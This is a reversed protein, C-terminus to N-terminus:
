KRAEPRAPAVVFPNQVDAYHEGQFALRCFTILPRIDKDPIHIRAILPDIAVARQVRGNRVYRGGKAFYWVATELDPLSGDHGYPPRKACEVMPATRFCYDDAARGTIAGRGRDLNNGSRASLGANHWHQDRWGYKPDHCVLCNAQFTPWGELAEAPLGSEDGRALRDAPLDRSTLTRLFVVLCERVNAETLDRRGYAIEALDRYQKQRNIRDVVAQISPMAMVTPDRVAQLCM